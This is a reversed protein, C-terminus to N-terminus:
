LWGWAVLDFAYVGFVCVRPRCRFYPFGYWGSDWYRFSLVLLSSMGAVIATSRYFKRKFSCHYLPNFFNAKHLLNRRVCRDSVTGTVCTANGIQLAMSIRQKSFSGVRQDDHSRCLMKSLRTIFIEISKGLSGQVELAM